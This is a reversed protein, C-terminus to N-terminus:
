ICTIQQTIARARTKARARTILIGDVRVGPTGTAGPPRSLPGSVAAESLVEVVAYMGGICHSTLEGLNSVTYEIMGSDGKIELLPFLTERYECDTANLGEYKVVLCSKEDTYVLPGCPHKTTGDLYDQVITKDTM